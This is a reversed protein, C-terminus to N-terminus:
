FNALVPRDDRDFCFVARQEGAVSCVQALCFLEPLPFPGDSPFPLALQRVGSRERWLGNVAPWGCFTSGGVGRWGDDCGVPCAVACRIHGTRTALRRSFCRRLEGGEWAGLTLEGRDGCVCVRYLGGPVIGNVTFSIEREDETVCITGVRQRDLYLPYDLAMGGEEREELCIDTWFPEHMFRRRAM